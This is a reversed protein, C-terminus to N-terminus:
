VKFKIQNSEIKRVLGKDDYHITLSGNKMSFVGNDLLVMFDTQHERFSRFLEVDIPTLFITVENNLKEGITMEKNM